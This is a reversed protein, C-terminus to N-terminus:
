VENDNDLRRLRTLAWRAKNAIYEVPSYQLRELAEEAQLFGLKGVSEAADGLILGAEQVMIKLLIEAGQQSGLNGLARVIHRRNSEEFETALHRVLRDQFKTLRRKGVEIIALRRVDADPSDLMAPDFLTNDAQEESMLTGEPIVESEQRILPKPVDAEAVVL